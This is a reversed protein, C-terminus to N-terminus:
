KEDSCYVKEGLRLLRVEINSRLGYKSVLNNLDERSLISNPNIKPDFRSSGLCQCAWKTRNKM